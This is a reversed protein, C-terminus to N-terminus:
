EGDCHRRGEHSRRGWGCRRVIQLVKTLNHRLQLQRPSPVCAARTFGTRSTRKRVQRKEERASRGHDAARQQLICLLKSVAYM